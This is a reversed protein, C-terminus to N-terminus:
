MKLAVEYGDSCWVYNDSYQQSYDSYQVKCGWSQETVAFKYKKSGEGKQGMRVGQQRAAMLINETEPDTETRSTQKKSEITSLYINIAMKNNM